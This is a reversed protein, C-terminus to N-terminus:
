SALTIICGTQAGSALFILHYSNNHDRSGGPGPWLGGNILMQSQRDDTCVAKLVM